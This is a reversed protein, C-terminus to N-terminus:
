KATGEGPDDPELEVTIEQGVGRVLDAIPTPIVFPLGAVDVLTTPLQNQASLAAMQGLWAVLGNLDLQIKAELQEQLYTNHAELRDLRAGVTEMQSDLKRVRQKAEGVAGPVDGLFTPCSLPVMSTLAIGFADVYHYKMGKRDARILDRREMVGCVRCTKTMGGNDNLWDPQGNRATPDDGWQHPADHAPKNGTDIPVTDLDLVPIEAGSPAKFTTMGYQAAPIKDLRTSPPLEPFPKLEVRLQFEKANPDTRAMMDTERMVPAM